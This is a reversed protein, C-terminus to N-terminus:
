LRHQFAEYGGASYDNIKITRSTAKKTWDDVYKKETIHYLLDDIYLRNNEKDYHWAVRIGGGSRGRPSVHFKGILEQPRAEPNAAIREIEAVFRRTEHRVRSDKQSREIAARSIFIELDKKGKEEGALFLLGSILIFIIGIFSNITSSVAVGIVAGTINSKSNILLIIGALFLTLSLFKYIRKKEM